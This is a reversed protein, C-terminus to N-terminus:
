PALRQADRYAKGLESISGDFNFLPTDFPGDYRFGYADGMCEVRNTWPAYRTVMPEADLYALYKRMEATTEQLTRDLQHALAWETVWVESIGWQKALDVYSQVQASYAAATKGWYTHIALADLRPPQGYEAIYAARWDELWTGPHVIQPSALKRDPYAAELKRWARAAAEPAMNAQEGGDPENFGLLWQSNGGLPQGITSANWITPVSEINPFLPPNLGWNWLWAVGLAAVEKAQQEYSGCALNIGRKPNPSSNIIPLYLKYQAPALSRNTTPPAICSTLLLVVLIVTTLKVM